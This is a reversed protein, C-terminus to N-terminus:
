LTALALRANAPRAYLPAEGQQIICRGHLSCANGIGGPCVDSCRYGTYGQDCICSGLSSCTGKGSCPLGLHFCGTFALTHYGGSTLFNVNAGRLLTIFTPVMRQTLDNTGLMGYDNNGFAYRHLMVTLERLALLMALM